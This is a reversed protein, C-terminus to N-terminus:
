AAVAGLGVLVPQAFDGVGALDLAAQGLGNFPGVHEDAHGLGAAQGGLHAAVHGLVGDDKGHGVGGGLDHGVLGLGAAHPHNGGAAAVEGVLDVVNQAEGAQELAGQRHPGPVDVVLHLQGGGVGDGVQDGVGLAAVLVDDGVGKVG